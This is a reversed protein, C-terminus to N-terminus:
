LNRRQEQCTHRGSIDEEPTARAAEGRHTASGGTVRSRSKGHSLTSGILQRDVSSWGKHPPTHRSAALPRSYRRSGARRLVRERGQPCLPPARRRADHARKDIDPAPDNAAIRRAGCTSQGLRPTELNTLEADTTPTDRRRRARRGTASNIARANRERYCFRAGLKPATAPYNSM